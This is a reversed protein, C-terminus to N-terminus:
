QQVEHFDDFCSFPFAHWGFGLYVREDEPHILDVEDFQAEVSSMSTGVYVKKERVGKLLARKGLLYKHPGRYRGSIIQRM